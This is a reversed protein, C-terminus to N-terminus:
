MQWHFFLFATSNKLCLKLWQSDKIIIFFPKLNKIVWKHLFLKKDLTVVLSKYLDDNFTWAHHADMEFVFESIFCNCDHFSAFELKENFHPFHKIRLGYMNYLIEWYVMNEKENQM